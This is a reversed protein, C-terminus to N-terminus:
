NTVQNTSNDNEFESENFIKEVLADDNNEALPNSQEVNYSPNYVEANIHPDAFEGGSNSEYNKKKKIIIIIVIM